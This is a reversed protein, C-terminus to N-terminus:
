LSIRVDNFGLDETIFKVLTGIDQPFELSVDVVDDVAAQINRAGKIREKLAQKLLRKDAEL